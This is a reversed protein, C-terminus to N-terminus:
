SKGLSYEEKPIKITFRSGEGLKSQIEIEGDHLHVIEYAIALGLGTGAVGATQPNGSRYFKEFVHPLDEESMGYGTDEVDFVVASDREEMSFTIKGQEPTYKVANGLVNIIATKLLEKDAMFSPLIDPVHTEVAIRKSQASAEITSLCDNILWDTRLLGKDLTLNGMEMKSINLLNQIISSLRQTEQNITNYFEKQMEPKEVEGDMLMESYARINTLSTGLEHAVHAIFEEQARKAMNTETVNKVCIMKGIATREGATLPSVSIHFVDKPAYDPFTTELSNIGEPSDTMENGSVLEGIEKQPFVRDLGKNVVYERKDNIINLMYENIFTVHHQLDVVIIGLNLSDLVDTLQHKEFGIVGLKSTLRINEERVENLVNNTSTFSEELERLIPMVKEGGPPVRSQLGDDCASRVTRAYTAKLSRLTAWMGYYAVLLAVLIFFAIMALFSIREMSFITVTPLKLGLRVIGAKRGGDFIPKAFEYVTYSAGAPRYSQRLLTTTYISRTRVSDPIASSVEPSAISILAGGGEGHVLLYMFGQYSTYEALSRLFFTRKDPAFDKLPYLSVLSVLYTGKDVIEQGNKKEEQRVLVQASLVIGVLVLIGIALAVKPMKPLYLLGGV